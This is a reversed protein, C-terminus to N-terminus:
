SNKNLLRASLREVATRAIDSAPYLRQANLYCALSFGVQGAREAEEGKKIQQVFEASEGSLDARLKNLVSDDAWDHAATELAEWAAFANNNRRFLNSKEIATEAAKVKELAAKMQEIRNTDGVLATALQLQKDFVGRYNKASVLRDFEVQM